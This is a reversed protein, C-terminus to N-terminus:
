KKGRKKVLHLVSVGGIVLAIITLPTLTKPSRTPSGLTIVDKDNNEISTESTIISPISYKSEIIVSPDSSIFVSKPKKTINQISKPKLEERLKTQKVSKFIDEPATEATYGREALYQDLNSRPNYDYTLGGIIFQNTTQPSQLSQIIDKTTATGKQGVSGWKQKFQQTSALKKMQEDYSVM